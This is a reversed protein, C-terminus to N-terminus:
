KWLNLLTESGIRCSTADLELKRSTDLGIDVEDLISSCIANVALADHKASCVLTRVTAITSSVKSQFKKFTREIGAGWFV